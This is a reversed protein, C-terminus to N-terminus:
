LLFMAMRSYQSSEMDTKLKKIGEHIKNYVTRHSLGTRQVIEEYNLGEYFRLAILEKQRNPLDNIKSM